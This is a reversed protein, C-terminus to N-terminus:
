TEEYLKLFETGGSSPVQLWNLEDYGDVGDIVHFAYAYRSKGSNNKESKHLVSNHILILSGAKCEVLKYESDQDLPVDKIDHEVEIFNCGKKGGEVKVFRKTIPFTKHTGPNYKLCGNKETCDELAYWFGVASQPKTFLFTADTHSPVANDRAESSSTPNKFILMSQLVRPDSFKLDRAVQKVRSDFTIDHFVPDHMHLGHGIKNVAQQKSVRLKGNEDLADVDFFYSVKDSSDFFYQDGIHDNDGTKFQTKPHSAVDFEDLLRHSEELMQAVQSQSLFDPICLMGEQNFQDIQTQTLGLM